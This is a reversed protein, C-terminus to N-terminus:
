DLLLIFFKFILSLTVYFLLHCDTATDPFILLDHSFYIDASSRM